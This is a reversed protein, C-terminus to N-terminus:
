QAPYPGQAWTKHAAFFKADAGQEPRPGSVGSLGGYRAQNLLTQHTSFWKKIALGVVHPHGAIRAPFQHLPCVSCSYILSYILKM